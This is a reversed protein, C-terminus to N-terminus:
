QGRDKLLIPAKHQQEKFLFVLLFSLGGGKTGACVCSQKEWPFQPNQGPFGGLTQSRPTQPDRAEWGTEPDRPGARCRRWQGRSGRGPRRFDAGLQLVARRRGTAGAVTQGFLALDGVGGPVPSRCRRRRQKAM